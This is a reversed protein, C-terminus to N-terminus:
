WREGAMCVEIQVCLMDKAVAAAGLMEGHFNDHEPRFDDHVWYHDLPDLHDEYHGWNHGGHDHTDEHHMGHDVNYVDSHHAAPQPVPAEGAGHAGMDHGMDGTHLDRPHPHIYDAQNPLHM